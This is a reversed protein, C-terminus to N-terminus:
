IDLTYQVMTRYKNKLPTPELIMEKAFKFGTKQCLAISKKNETEVTYILQKTPISERCIAIAQELLEFGYGRGQQDERVWLGIEVSEKNIDNLTFCGIFENWQPHFALLVLCTGFQMELQSQRIYEAALLPHALSDISLYKGVAPTFYGQLIIQDDAKIKRLLLRKTEWQQNALFVTRNQPELMNIIMEIEQKIGEQIFNSSEISALKERHQLLISLLYFWTIEEVKDQNGGQKNATIIKLYETEAYMSDLWELSRYTNWFKGTKQVILLFLRLQVERDMTSTSHSLDVILRNVIFPYVPSLPDLVEVQALLSTWHRKDAITDVLRVAIEKEQENLFPFEVLSELSEKSQYEM